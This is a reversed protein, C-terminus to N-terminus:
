KLMAGNGSDYYDDGFVVAARRVARENVQVGKEKAMRQLAQFLLASM